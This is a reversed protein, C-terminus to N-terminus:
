PSSDRPYGLILKLRRPLEAWGVDEPPPLRLRGGKCALWATPSFYLTPVWAFAPSSYIVISRHENLWAQGTPTRFYELIGAVAAGLQENGAFRCRRYASDSTPQVTPPM